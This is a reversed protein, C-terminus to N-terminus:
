RLDGLWGQIMAIATMAATETRLVRPGLRLGAWGHAQLLRAEEPDFGGEPGCALIIRSPAEALMSLAAPVSRGGRPDLHIRLTAQSASAEHPPADRAIWEDFTAPPALMPLRNRGCQACAAAALRQWHLMRNDARRADLRVVSRACQLPVIASAGLEVAKEITWDMKDAASIGQALEIALSPLPERAHVRQVLIATQPVRSRSAAPAADHQIRGDASLGEGDFLVVADGPQRRLVRRLHHAADPALVLTAGERAGSLAGPVLLRPTM